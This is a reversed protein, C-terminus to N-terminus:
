RKDKDRGRRSPREPREQQEAAQRLLAIKRALWDSLCDDLCMELIQGETLDRRLLVQLHWKAETLKDLHPPTIRPTKRTSSTPFEAVPSSVRAVRAGSAPAHFPSGTKKPLEPSATASGAIPPIRPVPTFPTIGTGGKRFGQIDLRLSRIREDLNNRRLGLEESAAQVNGRWKLLANVIEQVSVKALAPM